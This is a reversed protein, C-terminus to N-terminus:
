LPRDASSRLVSQILCVAEHYTDATLPTVEGKRAKPEYNAIM